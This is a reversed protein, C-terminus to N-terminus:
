RRSTDAKYLEEISGRAESKLLSRANSNPKRPSFFHNQAKWLVWALKIRSESNYNIVIYNEGKITASQNITLGSNKCIKVEWSKNFRSLDSHKLGKVFTSCHQIISKEIKESLDRAIVGSSPPTFGYESFIPTIEKYLNELKLFVSKAAIVIGEKESDTLPDPDKHGQPVHLKFEKQQGQFEMTM